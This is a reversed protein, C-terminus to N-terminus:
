GTKAFESPPELIEIDYRNFIETVKAMDPSEDAPLACLEEFFKEFNAGPVVTFM